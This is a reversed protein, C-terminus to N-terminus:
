RPSYTAVDCDQWASFSSQEDEGRTDSPWANGASGPHNARAIATTASTSGAPAMAAPLGRCRDSHGDNNQDLLHAGCAALREFRLAKAAAKEAADTDADADM